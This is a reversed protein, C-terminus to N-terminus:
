KNEYYGHVDNEVTQMYKLFVVQYAVCVISQRQTMYFFLADELAPFLACNKEDVLVDWLDMFEYSM